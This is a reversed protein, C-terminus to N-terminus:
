KAFKEPPVIIVAEAPAPALGNALYYLLGYALGAIAALISLLRFTTPMPRRLADQNSIQIDHQETPLGAM